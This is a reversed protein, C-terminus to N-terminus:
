NPHPVLKELLSTLMRRLGDVGVSLSAFAEAQIYGLDRALLLECEVEAASARAIDLFRAFDPESRRGSGEAINAEISVAARRLQSQLGYREYTPFGV